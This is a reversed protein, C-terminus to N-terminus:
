RGMRYIQATTTYRGLRLAEQHDPVYIDVRSKDNEIGSGGRDEVTYMTGNIMIQTGFPYYSSMAVMGVEVQKGSATIGSANEGCCKSCACYHTVDVEITAIPAGYIDESVPANFDVDKPRRLALTSEYSPSNFIVGEGGSSHVWMREGNDGYGAFVLVHNWGQGDDNMLFGLDGPLLESASIEYSNGWQDWTTGYLSVGVATKYVWDSFGSCDLGYPRITGSTSSGAATVLKPTNWEDNWGPPSKGGWFYPVKGVLSLGTAVIHKRTANCNQKNLFAILEADTLPVALGSGLSGYLTMKLANAMNTVVEDYTRGSADFQADLDLGFAKEVVSTDFPHITCEVYTVTETTPSLTVEGNQRYYTESKTGTIANGSYVPTTVTVEEYNPVTVSVESSKAEDPLYYTRNETEYRYQPVGNITGTQVKKTVVTVSVERYTFYSVPILIEKTLEQSTVPFMEGGYAELKAKMDAESTNQQNMSTSYAALIYAVDFGASSQAHNILAEM